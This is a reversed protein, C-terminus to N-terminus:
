ARTVWVLPVFLHEVNLWRITLHIRLIHWNNSWYNSVM